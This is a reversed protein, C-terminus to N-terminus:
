DDISATTVHTRDVKRSEMWTLVESVKLRWSARGKIQMHFAAVGVQYPQPFGDTKTLNLVHPQSVGMWEAVSQITTLQPLVTYGRKELYAKARECLLKEERTM